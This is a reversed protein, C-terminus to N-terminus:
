SGSCPVGRRSSWKETRRGETDFIVDDVEYWEGDVKNDDDLTQVRAERRYTYHNLAEQFESEKASFQKIIEDPSISPATLDMRGFGSDLPMPTFSDQDQAPAALACCGVVAMAIWSKM